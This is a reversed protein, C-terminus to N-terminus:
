QPRKQWCRSQGSWLRCQRGRSRGCRSFAGSRHSPGARIQTSNQVVPSSQRTKGRTGAAPPQSEQTLHSAVSAGDDSGTLWWQLTLLNLIEPVRCEHHPVYLPACKLQPTHKRVRHHQRINYCCTHTKPVWKERHNKPIKYWHREEGRQKDGTTDESCPIRRQYTSAIDYCAQMKMGPRHQTADDKLNHLINAANLPQEEPTISM